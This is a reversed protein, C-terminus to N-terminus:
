HAYAGLIMMGMQISYGLCGEVEIRYSVPKGDIVASYTPNVFHGSSMAEPVITVVVEEENIRLKFTRAAPDAGAMFVSTTRQSSGDSSTIVGGLSKDAQKKFEASIVQGYKRMILRSSGAAEDFFGWAIGGNIIGAVTHDYAKMEINTGTVNGVLDQGPEVPKYAPTAQSETKADPTQGALSLTRAKEFEQSLAEHASAFHFVSFMLCALGCASVLTKKM